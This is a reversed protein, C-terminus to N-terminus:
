CGCRGGSKKVPKKAAPKKETKKKVVPKKTAMKDAEKPITDCM